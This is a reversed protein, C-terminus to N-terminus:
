NTDKKGALHPNDNEGKVNSGAGLSTHLAVYDQGLQQVAQALAVDANAVDQEIDILERVTVGGNQVLTRTLDRATVFLDASRRAQVVSAASGRYSVLANEVEGLANLVLSKWTELAQRAQSEEAKVSAKLTNDLLSPLTLTPGFFYELETVGNNRAPGISGSLSLQPFLNARAVGIDTVEAYYTREASRLDPRNRLLDAPIGINTPMTPQPQRANQDLDINLKGPGVGALIALNNKLIRIASKLPPIQSQTEALLAQTRTVELKIASGQDFLAQTLEVTQRRSKLQTQRLRLLRQNFRLDVYASAINLIILSRAEDVGADAVDVQAGAGNIQQRRVGYPDLLWFVGLSGSSTTESSTGVGASEGRQITASPNIQARPPVGELNALAEIVLERAIGLDINNDLAKDMLQNLTPDNLDEWWADNNLIVPVASDQANFSPGFNFFPSTYQEETSCAALGVCSSLMWVALRVRRGSYKNMMM